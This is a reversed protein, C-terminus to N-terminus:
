IHRAIASQLEFWDAASRIDAQAAQRQAELIALAADAASAKDLIIRADDATAVLPSSGGALVHLAAARKAAYLGDNISSPRMAAHAADLRMLADAKLADLDKRPTLKM